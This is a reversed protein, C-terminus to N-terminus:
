QGQSGFLFIVIGRGLPWNKVRTSQNIIGSILVIRYAYGTCM